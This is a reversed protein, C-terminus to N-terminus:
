KFNSPYHHGSLNAAKNLASRWSQLKGMGDYKQEHKAFADGYTDTQHRVHTPDVNYFIPIVIQNNVKNCEMIKVLEELCWRSSAYHQSFIVLSIMSGEIATVLASSIEEGSELREDVYADIQKAHLEKTLHSLFGHRVDTGRFSVFVDYKTQIRSSSSSAM